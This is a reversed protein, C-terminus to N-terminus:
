GGYSSTSESPVLVLLLLELPDPLEVSVELLEAALLLLLEYPLEVDLSEEFAEDFELLVPEELEEDEV